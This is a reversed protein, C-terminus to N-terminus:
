EFGGALLGAVRALHAPGLPSEQLHPVEVIPRGCSALRARQTAELEERQVRRRGVATIPDMGTLRDLVRPDAFLRPLVQNVVVVGVHATVSGKLGPTGRLKELLELTENTPLEEPLTVVHVATRAPDSWVAAMLRTKDVMPGVRVTETLVRSVSFLKLAHGTSPCDVVVRDFRPRHSAFLGTEAREEAHFWLKGMMTLENLSPVFRLFTRTLRNDFVAKYLAELKLTMLAYERLAQAPNFNVVTLHEEVQLLDDPITASSSSSAKLGLLGSHSDRANVQCLLTNKGEDAFRRALACAVLSKGVGGKGTVFHIQRGAREPSFM